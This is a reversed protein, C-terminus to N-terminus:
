FNYKQLALREEILVIEFPSEEQHAARRFRAPFETEVTSELTLDKELETLKELRLANEFATDRDIGVRCMAEIM